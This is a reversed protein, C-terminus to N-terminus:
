DVTLSYQGLLQREDAFNTGVKESLSHQTTLIVSGWLRIRPKRLWPGSGNRGLLEETTNKLGLLGQELGVVVLFIQYRQSNLKSRQIQVWSSQGSSWM